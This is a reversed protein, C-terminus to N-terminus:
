LPLDAHTWELTVVPCFCGWLSPLVSEEFGCDLAPHRFVDSIEATLIMGPRRPPSEGLELGAQAVCYSGAEFICCCWLEEPVKNEVLVFGLNNM